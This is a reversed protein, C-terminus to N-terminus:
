IVEYVRFLGKDVLSTWKSRSYGWTQGAGKAENRAGVHVLGVLKWRRMGNPRKQGGRLVLWNFCGPVSVITDGPNAEGAAITGMLRNGGDRIRVPSTGGNALWFGGLDLWQNMLRYAMALLAKESRDLMLYPKSRLILVIWWLCRIFIYRGVPPLALVKEVTRRWPSTRVSALETAWNTYVTGKPQGLLILRKGDASIQFVDIFHRTKLRTISNYAKDDVSRSWNPVWSPMNTDKDKGFNAAELLSLSKTERALYEALSTFFEARTLHKGSDMLVDLNDKDRTIVYYPRNIAWHKITFDYFQLWPAVALAALTRLIVKHWLSSSGWTGLLDEPHALIWYTSYRILRELLNALRTVEGTTVGTAIGLIAYLRDREDRCKFLGATKLLIRNLKHAFSQEHFPAVGGYMDPYFIYVMNRMAEVVWKDLLTRDFAIRGQDHRSSYRFDRITNHMPVCSLVADRFEDDDPHEVHLASHASVFNGFDCTSHGCQLLVLSTALSAEQIVWLRKWWGRNAIELFGPRCDRFIHPQHPSFFLRLFHRRVNLSEAYDFAKQIQQRHRCHPGVLSLCTTCSNQQGIDHYPGIWIVVPSANAYIWGMRQIETAKEDENHQNICLADIWLTRSRYERRLHRLAQELSRTVPLSEFKLSGFAAPNEAYGPVRHALIWPKTELVEDVLGLGNMLTDALFVSFRICLLATFMNILTPSLTGELRIIPPAAIIVMSVRFSLAYRQSLHWLRKVAIKFLTSARNLGTDARTQMTSNISAVKIFSPNTEDGWQYSLAEYQCRIKTHRTEIVCQIDDSFQGPLVHVVRFEADLLPRYLHNRINAQSPANVPTGM